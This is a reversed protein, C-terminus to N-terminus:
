SRPSRATPVPRNRDHAARLLEATDRQAIFTAGRFLHASGVHDAHAHSYIFL